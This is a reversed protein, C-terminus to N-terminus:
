VHAEPPHSFLLTKATHAGFHIIGYQSLMKAPNRMYQEVETKGVVVRYHPKGKLTKVGHMSGVMSLIRSELRRFKNNVHGRCSVLYERWLDHNIIRGYCELTKKLVVQPVHMLGADAMVSNYDEYDLDQCLCEQLMNIFLSHEPNFPTFRDLLNGGSLYAGNLAEFKRTPICDHDIVMVQDQDISAIYMAVLKPYLPYLKLREVTCGCARATAELLDSVRHMNDFYATFPGDPYGREDYLLEVGHECKSKLGVAVATRVWCDLVDQRHSIVLLKM